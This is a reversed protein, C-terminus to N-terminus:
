FNTSFCRVSSSPYNITFLVVKILMEADGRGLIPGGSQLPSGVNPIVDGVSNTLGDKGLGINRNNLLM